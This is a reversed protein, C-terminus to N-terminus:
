GSNVFIIVNGELLTAEAMASGNRPRMASFLALQIMSVVIGACFLVAKNSEQL